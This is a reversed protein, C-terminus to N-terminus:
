IGTAGGLETKRAIDAPECVETTDSAWGFATSPVAWLSILPLITHGSVWRLLERM